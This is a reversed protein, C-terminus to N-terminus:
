DDILAADIMAQLTAKNDNAGYEIGLEDLQSQLDAKSGEKVPEPVENHGDDIVVDDDTLDSVNIIKYGDDNDAKVAVTKLAYSMILGKHTHLIM